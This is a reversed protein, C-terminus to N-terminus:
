HRALVKQLCPGFNIHKFVNLPHKILSAVRCFLFPSKLALNFATTCGHDNNHDFFPLVVIWFWLLRKNYILPTKISTIRHLLQHKNPRLDIIVSSRLKANNICLTPRTEEGSYSLGNRVYHLLCFSRTRSDIKVISQSISPILWGLEIKNTGFMHTTAFFLYCFFYFNKFCWKSSTSSPISNWDCVKVRWPIIGKDTIM